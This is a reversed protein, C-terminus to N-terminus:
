SATRMRERLAHVFFEAARYSSRVLPGAAVYLFGMDEAIHKYHEFREPPVFANVIVHGRSPQLYQGLTLIDVNAERLDRMSTILDKEEEGLGLMISSKSYLNSDLEKISKLIRLTQQYNARADRIHPTLPATTELNHGIVDPKAETIERLQDINGNFDPILVEIIVKSDHKRIAKITSAFHEAGGDPLDDRNVSTIVVYNLNLDAVARAIKSPELPDLEGQPNGSKVMCFRCSRTCVDGLLLFTATGGRWCEGVNPCHAEECVTHLNHSHLLNKIKEYNPGAPSKARLWEPKTQKQQAIQAIRSYRPMTVLSGLINRRAIVKIDSAM